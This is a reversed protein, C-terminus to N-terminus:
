SIIKVLRWHNQDPLSEYAVEDMLQHVLFLGYGSTQAKNLDPTRVTAPDFSAGDDWVDVVMRLPSDTTTFALRIQGEIGAYAHNIINTCVEHVALRIQYAIQSRDEIQDIAQLMSDVCEGVVELNKYSAPIKIQMTERPPRNNQM